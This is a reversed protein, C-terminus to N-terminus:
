HISISGGEDSDDSLRFFFKAHFDCSVFILGSDEMSFLRKSLIRSFHVKIVHQGLTSLLLLHRNKVVLQESIAVPRVCIM